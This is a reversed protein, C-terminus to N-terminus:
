FLLLLSFYDKLVLPVIPWSEGDRYKSPWKLLYKLPM